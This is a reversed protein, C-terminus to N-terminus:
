LRLNERTELLRAGILVILISTILFLLFPWFVSRLDVYPNSSFKSITTVPSLNYFEKKLKLPAFFSLSAVIILVTVSLNSEKINESLASIVIGFGIFAIDLLFLLVLLPIINYVTTGKWELLIIWLWAQFLALVVVPLTKGLIIERKSMPAAILIEYTRKEKEGVISDTVMNASLFTPLLLIFPILIGYMIEIFEPSQIRPIKASTKVYVEDFKIPNVVADPDDYWLSLRDRKLKISYKQITETIVIDAYGSLIDSNDIFLRLDIFDSKILADFNPPFVLVAVMNTSELIDKPGGTVFSIRLDKRLERTIENERGIIGVRPKEVRVFTSTEPAAVATYLLAAYIIGMVIIMQVFFAMIYVREGIIDRFEKKSLTIVKKM